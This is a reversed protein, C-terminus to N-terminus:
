VFIKKGNFEVIMCKLFKKPFYEGVLRINVTRGKVHLSTLVGGKYHVLSGPRGRGDRSEKLRVYSFSFPKYRGRADKQQMQQWVASMKIREKM